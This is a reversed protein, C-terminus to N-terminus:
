GDGGCGMWGMTFVAGIDARMSQGPAQHRGSCAWGVVVAGFLLMGLGKSLLM